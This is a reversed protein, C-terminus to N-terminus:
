AYGTKFIVKARPLTGDDNQTGDRYALQGDYIIPIPNSPVGFFEEWTECVKVSAEEDELQFVDFGRKTKSPTRNPRDFSVSSQRSSDATTPPVQTLRRGTRPDRSLPARFRQKRRPRAQIEAVKAARDISIRHPDYEPWESFLSLAYDDGIPDREPLWQLTHEPSTAEGPKSRSGFASSREELELTGGTTDTNTRTSSRAEEGSADPRADNESAMTTMDKAAIPQSVAASLQRTAMLPEEIDSSAAQRSPRRRSLPEDDSSSQLGRGKAQKATGESDSDRVAVREVINLDSDLGNFHSPPLPSARPEKWKKKEDNASALKAKTQTTAQQRGPLTSGGDGETANRSADRLVGTTLMSKARDRKVPSMPTKLVPDWHLMTKEFGPMLEVTFPKNNPDESQHTRWPPNLCRKTDDLPRWKKMTITARVGAEWKNGVKMEYGPINDAIWGIIENSIMRYKETSCLAMGILKEYTGNPREFGDGLDHEHRAVTNFSKRKVNVVNANTNVEGESSLAEDSDESRDSREGNGSVAESKSVKSLRAKPPTQQVAWLDTEHAADLRNDQPKDGGSANHSCRRHQTRCDNCATRQDPKKLKGLSDSASGPKASSSPNLGNARQKDPRNDGVQRAPLGQGSVTTSTEYTSNSQLTENNDRMQAANPTELASSTRTEKRCKSCLNSSGSPNLATTRQCRVCQTTAPHALKNRKMAMGPGSPQAELQSSVSRPTPETTPLLKGNPKLAKKPRAVDVEEQGLKRKEGQPSGHTPVDRSDDPSTEAGFEAQADTAPGKELKKRVFSLRGIKKQHENLENHAFSKEVLDDADLELSDLTAEKAVSASGGNDPTHSLQQLTQQGSDFTRAPQTASPAPSTAPLSPVSPRSKPPVNKKICRQCQWVSLDEASAPITNRPQCRHHYKRPCTTCAVLSQLGLLPPTGCVHCKSHKSVSLDSNTVASISSSDDKEARAAVHSPRASTSAPTEHQPPIVASESALSAPAAATELVIPALSGDRSAEGDMSRSVFPGPLNNKSDHISTNAATGNPLCQMKLVYQRFLKQQNFENFCRDLDDRGVVSSEFAIRWGAEDCTVSSEKVRLFKALHKRTTPLPALDSASIFIHPSRASVQIESIESQPLPAKKPGTPVGTLGNFDIKQQGTGEEM